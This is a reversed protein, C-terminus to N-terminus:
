STAPRRQYVQIYAQTLTIMQPLLDVVHLDQLEFWKGTPHDMIHVKYNGVSGKRSAAEEEHVVNGILDYLLSQGPRKVDDAVFEAMDLSKLGFNVITKNKEVFFNNKQFRKIYVILYEPLCTLWFKKVTSDKYTKYEKEQVGNFKRLLVTLPIQPIVNQDQEDKFLPMPPVDLTLYTFPVEEVQEYYEPDNLLKKLEEPDTVEPPILKKTCVRMKGKLSSSIISSKIKKTGNLSIHLSSLLWSLFEVADGQQTIQYKKKSCLVVAQLMEHPSVHSKFNGNNWLKRYLEGLRLPLIKFLDGPPRPLHVYNSEQLLYNRIPAVHSILQLVVNCYDNAKINNLGVIGPRYTSGTIARCLRPTSTLLAIQSRSFQPNCVHKIDDLSSDIIEYNDPICYFKLTNLNMYVHHSTEGSHVYAPTNVGRGQFYLGCVLCAYVNLPSLTVSCLKEFDFDLVGRHITDLYPCHRSDFKQQKAAEVEGYEDEEEEDLAEQKLERKLVESATM